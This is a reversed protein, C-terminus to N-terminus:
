YKIMMNVTLSPQLNNHPVDNGQNAVVVPITGTIAQAEVAADAAGAASSDVRSLILSGPHNHTPMEPITLQHTEFGYFGAVVDANGDTVIGASSGGMNDKGVAVRGRLDPVVITGGGDFDGGANPSVNKLIDFLTRFKEGSETGSSKGMTQGYMFIWGSPPTSLMTPLPGTGPPVLREDHKDVVTIEGISYQLRVKDIDYPTFPAQSSRIGVLAIADSLDHIRESNPPQGGAGTLWWNDLDRDCFLLICTDGSAIPFSLFAGGGNLVVVPVRVLIPYPVIVDSVQNRNLTNRRKLVKQYLFLVTATMNDPNFEQITGVSVCNMEAKVEQKVLHLITNLDPLNRQVESPTAM